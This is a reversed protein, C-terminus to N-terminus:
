MEGESEGLAETEADADADKLGDADGLAEAHPSDSSSHISCEQLM